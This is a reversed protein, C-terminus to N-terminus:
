VIMRTWAMLWALLLVGQFAASTAVGAIRGGPRRLWHALVWALPFVEVAYRWISQQWKDGIMLPVLLLLWGTVQYALPLLRVGSVLLAGILLVSLMKVMPRGFEGTLLPQWFDTPPGAVVGWGAYQLHSYALPDGTLQRCYLLFGAWALVPALIAPAAKLYNKWSAWRVFNYGGQRLAVLGLPLALVFGSSRTLGFGVAALMAWGWRRREALVFAALVLALFLSETLVAQLLFASPLVVLWTAGDIPGVGEGKPGARNGFVTHTLDYMLAICALMALNSILLLSGAAGLLPALPKGLLPYLPGFTFRHLSGPVSFREGAEARQILTQEEGTLPKLYDQGVLRIYHESDFHQWMTVPGFNGENLEDPWLQGTPLIQQRPFEMVTVAVAGVGLAALKCVLFILLVRRWKVRDLRWRPRSVPDTSVESDGSTVTDDVGSDADASRSTM